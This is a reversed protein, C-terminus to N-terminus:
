RGKKYATKVLKEYEHMTIEKNEPVFTERQVKIMKVRIDTWGMVECFHNVAALYSNISSIKYKGCKQLYEKYKLLMEKNISQGKAYAMLKKIDRVYKDITQIEKEAMILMKRFYELTSSTIIRKQCEYNDSIGKGRIDKNEVMGFM